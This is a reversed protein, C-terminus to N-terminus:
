QGLSTVLNDKPEKGEKKKKEESKTKDTM